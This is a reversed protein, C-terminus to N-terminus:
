VSASYWPVNKNELRCRDCRCANTNKLCRLVSACWREERRELWGGVVTRAKWCSRSPVVEASPWNLYVPKGNTVVRLKAGRIVQDNGIILVEVNGRKLSNRKVNDEKLLVVEGVKLKVAAECKGNRHYERLDTVYERRWRNWFHLRERTLYRFKRLYEMEGEKIAYKMPYVGLDGGM